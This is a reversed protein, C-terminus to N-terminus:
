QPARGSLTLYRLRKAEELPDIGFGKWWGREDGFDHLSRHHRTCLPVAWEDGVKRGMARPQAFLIHHAQSPRSGCVLCPRRGVYKLHKPDKSRTEKEILKVSAKLDEARSNQKELYALHRDCITELMHAYHRGSKSRLEPQKGQFKALTNSNCKWFARLEGPQSISRIRKRLLKCFAVPDKCAHLRDGNPAYITWFEDASNPSTKPNKTRRVGRKETDYLALGFPNGFTALARKMADTEAAKLANDHAEGRTVGIGHGSGSGMRIVINEGARVRIRVRAMYSCADRVDRTGEWVCKIQITERDWADFGFIRNAEAIVHWGEVYSLQKGRAARTRVHRSNLKRSLARQQVETFAM